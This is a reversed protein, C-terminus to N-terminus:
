EAREEVVMRSGEYRKIGIQAGVKIWEGGSVADYLKGEIEVKGAPRLPTKAVGVTGVPPLSEVDLGAVFGKDRDQEGKLVLRSLHGVKPLLYRTLLFMAIVGVVLAGSLWALKEFFFQAAVNMEGTNWSFDLEGVAPLMIAFLGILALAIGVIGAVGFGPLVFIEVAILILGTVLLIIELWNVAEMAFSSLLIFFLCILAIIGPFGFGPTNMEVYAGLMMGLFLISSVIPNSLFSFFLTKWDKKPAIITANPIQEFFPYTFLLSRDAPWEGAKEQEATIPPVAKPEVMFDAVGYEMMQQANLTLLKGEASIVRDSPRIQNENDLRVVEGGRDVLIIEKDVMAEAINPDRDFYAARNGFEARLASKVKESAEQPQGGQAGMLIPEAAGMTADKTAAIFRCSYALLAGASIAWNDVFAVCPISENQDLNILMKSVEEAAAVEGGPTNFVAIVFRVGKRKFEELASRVYIATSRNIMSRDFTIQGILNEGEPDFKISAALQEDVVSTPDPEGELTPPEKLTGLGLAAVQNQDLVLPQGKPSIPIAGAPVEGAVLKLQGDEEVVVLDADSMADALLLWLQRDKRDAPVFGRVKSRLLAPSIRQDGGAIDGWSLPSSGYLTESLFPFLAAPGVAEGDIYVEVSSNKLSYIKEALDLAADLDGSTSSIYLELDGPELREGIEELKTKSLHGRMAIQQEGFLALPLLLFLLLWKQMAAEYWM